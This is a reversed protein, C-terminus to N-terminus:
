IGETLAADIKDACAKALETSANGYQYSRLAHSAAQLLKKLEAIESDCASFGDELGMLRSKLREAEIVNQLSGNEEAM